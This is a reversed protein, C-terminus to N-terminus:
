LLRPPRDPLFAADSPNEFRSPNPEAVVPVSQSFRFHVVSVAFLKEEEENRGFPGKVRFGRGPCTHKWSFFERL